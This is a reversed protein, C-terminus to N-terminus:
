RAATNLVLLKAARLRLEMELPNAGGCLKTPALGLCPGVTCKMYSLHYEDRRLFVNIYFIYTNGCEGRHIGKM